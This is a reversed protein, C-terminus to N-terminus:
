TSDSQTHQLCLRRTCCVLKCPVNPTGERVSGGKNPQLQAGINLQTQSLASALMHALVHAGASGLASRSRAILALNPASCVICAWAHEASVVSGSHSVLVDKIFRTLDWSRRSLLEKDSRLVAVLFLAAGDAPLGERCAGGLLGWFQGPRQFCPVPWVTAAFTDQLSAREPHHCEMTVWFRGDGPVVRADPLTLRAGRSTECWGAPHVLCYRPQRTPVAEALPADISPQLPGRGHM